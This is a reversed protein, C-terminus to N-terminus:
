FGNAQRYMAQLYAVADPTLGGHTSAYAQKWAQDWASGPGYRQAYQADSVGPIDSKAPMAANQAPGASVGAAGAPERGAVNQGTQDLSLGAVNTGYTGVAGAQQGALQALLNAYESRMAADGEQYQRANYNQANQLSGAYIQGRSAYRNTTGKVNTDYSKKLQAARSYPNSPDISGDDLYGYARQYNSKQAQLAALTDGLSQNYAGLALQNSASLDPTGADAAPAPAAPAPPPSPMVANQPTGYYLAQWQAPTLGNYPKTAYGM